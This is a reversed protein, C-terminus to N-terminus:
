ALGGQRNILGVKEQLLSRTAQQNAGFLLLPITVTRNPFRQGVVPQGWIATAQFAEIAAQGWDIGASEIAISTGDNLSLETRNAIASSPDISVTWGAYGPFPSM